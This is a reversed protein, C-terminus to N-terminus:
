TESVLPSEPVIRAEGPEKIPQTNMMGIVHRADDQFREPAFEMTLWESKIFADTITLRVPKRHLHRLITVGFVTRSDSPDDAFSSTTYGPIPWSFKKGLFGVRQTVLTLLKRSADVIGWLGTFLYSFLLLELAAAEGNTLETVPM